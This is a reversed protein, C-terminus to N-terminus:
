WSIYYSKSNYGRLKLSKRIEVNFGRAVLYHPYNYVDFTAQGGKSSEYIRNESKQIEVLSKKDDVSGDVFDFSISNEGNKAKELIAKNLSEYADVYPFKSKAFFISENTQRTIERVEIASIDKM